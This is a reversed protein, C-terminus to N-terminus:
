QKQKLIQEMVNTVVRDCRSLHFSYLSDSKYHSSLSDRLMEKARNLRVKVNSESINLSEMTESTSMNEVERMIFVLRYKEPLKNLARELIHQLETNMIQLLPSEGTTIKDYNVQDWDQKKQRLKKHQLAENILIRTLWTSFSSRFEFRNLNEYAKIYAVQMIEEAENSDNIISMCIRYMRQNYKRMIKEFLQINGNLIDHVMEEDAPLNAINSENYNVMM